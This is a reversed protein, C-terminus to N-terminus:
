SGSAEKKLREHYATFLNYVEVAGADGCESKIQDRNGTWWEAFVDASSNSAAECESLWEDVKSEDVTYNAYSAGDWRGMYIDAGFGLAKCSMSFADTTAMKFCEDNNYLGASEKATFKSSGNGPIAASWQDDVKVYLSIDVFALVEDKAAPELRKGDITYKWGIGCMGFQKTLEMLRWTPDIDTFGKLRGAPIPKLMEAPPQKVNNWIRLNDTM